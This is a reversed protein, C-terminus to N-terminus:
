FVSCSGSKLADAAYKDDIGREAIEKAKIAFERMKKAQIDTIGFSEKIKRLEEQSESVGDNSIAVEIANMYATYKIESIDNKMKLLIDDVAPPVLFYSQVKTKWEDSFKSYEM